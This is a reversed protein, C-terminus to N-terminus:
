FRMNRSGHKEVQIGRSITLHGAHTKSFYNFNGPNELTSITNTNVENKKKQIM